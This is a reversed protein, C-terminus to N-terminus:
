EQNLITIILRKMIEMDKPNSQAVLLTLTTLAANNIVNRDLLDNKYLFYVFCAAAIRKNGDAFAHNKTVLYLLTAAKEQVTPYLEQDGFSQYIQRVASEFGNDRPIGFLGGFKGRLKEIETMFESVTIEPAISKKTGKEALKDHDYNELTEFSNAFETAINLLEKVIPDLDDIQNVATQQILNVAQILMKLKESAIQKNVVYGDVLYKKLTDTAWRRFATANKSNVRYGVSIIADLNYFLTKYNKGDSATHELISSVSSEDLEEESFINKLHKTIAQRNVGFLNAIQQQNLWLTQNELRVEVQNGHKNEYIVIQNEEM